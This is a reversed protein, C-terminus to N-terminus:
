EAAPRESDAALWDIVARRSFRWADKLKRGPIEGAAALSLVSEVDIQLLDALQHPTLVEPPGAAGTARGFTFGEGLTDAYREVLEAIVEQKPRGLEIAARSLTKGTSAPVRAFLAVTEQSRQTSHSPASM